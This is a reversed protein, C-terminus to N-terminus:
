SGVAARMAKIVGPVTTKPDPKDEYELVLYGRYGAEKLIKAVRNVDNPQRPSGAPVITTKHHTTVAYPACRAIEAYPDASRFNGTDLNLGVWDSKVAEVIHIAQEATVPLGGHNEVALVVGNQEATPICAEICEIVWGIAEQESGAKPTSGGFIRMCPAGMEAAHRIWVKTREIQADREAGPPVTFKNGISTSCIDLGLLLAKRKLKNIYGADVDQPFYYSTMEVGDCGIEAAVDLYQDLTMTKGDTLYQRYSYAACGIKIRAGGSRKAPSAALTETGLGAVAGAALIGGMKLFDRRTSM